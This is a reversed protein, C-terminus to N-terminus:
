AKKSSGVAQLAAQGFCFSFPFFHVDDYVAGSVRPLCM